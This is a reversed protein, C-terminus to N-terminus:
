EQRPSDSPARAPFSGRVRKCLSVNRGRYFVRHDFRSESSEIGLERNGFKRDSDSRVDPLLEL